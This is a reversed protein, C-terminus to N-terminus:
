TGHSQKSLLEVVWNVVCIWSSGSIKGVVDDLLSRAWTNLFWSFPEACHLLVSYHALIVLAAPHFQRTLTVFGSPVLMPWLFVSRLEQPAGLTGNEDFVTISNTLMDISSILLSTTKGDSDSLAAFMAPLESLRDLLLKVSDGTKDSPYTDFLGKLPGTRIDGQSSLLIASLRSILSFINALRKIPIHSDQYKKRGPFAAFANLSLLLSTAYIAHCNASNISGALTDRM